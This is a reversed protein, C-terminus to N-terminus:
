IASLNVDGMSTCGGGLGRLYQVLRPTASHSTLSQGFGWRRKDTNVMAERKRQAIELHM